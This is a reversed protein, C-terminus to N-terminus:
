GLGSRQFLSRGMTALGGAHTEALASHIRAGEAARAKIRWVDFGPISTTDCVADGAVCLSQTVSAFRGPVDRADNFACVDVSLVDKSYPCIGKGSTPSNGWNIFEGPNVVRAPDAVLGAGAVLSALTPDSKAALLFDHVVLSGQSYGAMVVKPTVGQRACLSRLSVVYGTLADIGDQISAVYRRLNVDFFRDLREDYAGHDLGETLVDVSLAQYPLQYFTVKDSALGAADYRQKFGTWVAKTVSSANKDDVGRSTQGSGRVSVFYTPTCRGGLSSQGSTIHFVHRGPVSSGTSTRALGSAAGDLFAGNQLSGPLQRFHAAQGDGNSFGAGASVGSSADGTDWTLSGYNFVIDFDGGPNTNVLLLQISNRRDVHESYYGVRSWNVCFAPRGEFSTVGWTTTGSTAPRTDIDAFFAAIIPPTDANITFPTYTSMAADFTVNGNNNVYLADYRRGYFNLQFPLSVRASSGDDNRPLRHSLCSASSQLAATPAAASATRTRGASAAQALGFDLQASEGAALSLTTVGGPDTPATDQWCEALLPAAPEVCVTYSGPTLGVLSFAGDAASTTEAQEAGDDAPLVTVVADAVPRGGADRVTGTVTAGAALELDGVDVAEGEGVAWGAGDGSACGDAVNATGGDSVFCVTYTGADLGSAVFRGDADSGAYTVQGDQDAVEVTLGAAPQGSGAALVRGSLSAARRLDIDVDDTSAEAAVQVPDGDVATGFCTRRHTVAFSTDDVDACVQYSGPVLGEITFGGGADTIASATLAEFGVPFATVTVGGAAGAGAARVTGSLSGARELVTDADTVDTDEVDLPTGGGDGDPTNGRCEALMAPDSPRYCISYSGPSVGAFSFRGDADTSDFLQGQGGLDTLVVAVMPVPEGSSDTVSGSVTARRHTLLDPVVVQEGRAVAVPDSCDSADASVGTPAVLCVVYSGPEALDIRYEGDTVAATTEEGDEGTASVALGESPGVVTGSLRTPAGITIDVGARQQGAVLEVPAAADSGAVTHCGAPQEAPYACVTYSGPVVDTFAYGGSPAAQVTQPAGADIPSLTVVTEGLAGTAIVTGTIGGTTPSPTPGAPASGCQAVVAAGAAAVGARAQSVKRKAAKVKARAAKTGRGSRKAKKLARKAKVLRQLAKALGQDASTAAAQAAQCPDAAARAAAPESIGWGGILLSAILALVLASRFRWSPRVLDM